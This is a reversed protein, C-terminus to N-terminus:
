IVMRILIQTITTVLEGQSDNMIMIQQHFILQVNLTVIKIAYVSKPCLHRVCKHRSRHSQMSTTYM